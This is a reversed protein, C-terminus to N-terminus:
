DVTSQALDQGSIELHQVEFAIAKLVAASKHIISTSM